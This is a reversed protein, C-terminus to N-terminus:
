SSTIPNNNSHTIDARDAWDNIVVAIGPILHTASKQKLEEVHEKQKEMIKWLVGPDWEGRKPAFPNNEDQLMALLADDDLNIPPDILANMRGAGSDGTEEVFSEVAEQDFFTGSRAMMERVFSLWWADSAEHFEAPLFEKYHAPLAGAHCDASIILVRSEQPM